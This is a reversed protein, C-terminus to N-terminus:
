QNSIGSPTIPYGYQSSKITTSRKRQSEGYCQAIGQIGLELKRRDNSMHISYLLVSTTGNKSSVTSSSVVFAARNAEVGTFIEYIFLGCSCRLKAMCRYEVDGSRKSPSRDPLM